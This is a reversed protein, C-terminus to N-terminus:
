ELKFGLKIFAHEYAYLLGARVAPCRSSLHVTNERVFVPFKRCTNSRRPNTHVSCKGDILSPCGGLSNSFNLSFTGDKLPKLSKENLLLEKKEAIMLDVEDDNLIIFGKRCCFSHCENICYDSIALRAEDALREIEEM